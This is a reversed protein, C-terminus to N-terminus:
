FSLANAITDHGAILLTIADDHLQEATADPGEAALLLGLLDDPPDADALRRDILSQVIAELRARAPRLRRRPAVLAVLPDIAEVATALLERLEDAGASLDTSFLADGVVGLTLSAMEDV